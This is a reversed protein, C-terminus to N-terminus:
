LADVTVAEIGCLVHCGNTIREIVLLMNQWYNGGRIKAANLSFKELTWAANIREIM